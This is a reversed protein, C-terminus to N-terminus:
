VTAELVGDFDKVNMHGSFARPQTRCWGFLAPISEFTSVQENGYLMCQSPQCQIRPIMDDRAKEGSVVDPTYAAPVRLGDAGDEDFMASKESVVPSTGAM